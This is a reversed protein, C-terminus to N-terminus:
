FNCVVLHVLSFVVNQNCEIGAGEAMAGERGERLTILHVYIKVLPSQLGAGREGRNGAVVVAIRRAGLIKILYIVRKVPAIAADM